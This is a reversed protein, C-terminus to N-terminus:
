CLNCKGWAMDTAELNPKELTYIFILLHIYMQRMFHINIYCPSSKHTHNSHQGERYNKGFNFSWLDTTPPYDQIYCEQATDPVSYIYIYYQYYANYLANYLNYLATLHTECPSWETLLLTIGLKIDAAGHLLLM